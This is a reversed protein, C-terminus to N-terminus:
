TLLAKIGFLVAGVAAAISFWALWDALTYNMVDPLWIPRKREDM